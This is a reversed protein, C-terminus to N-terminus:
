LVCMIITEVIKYKCEFKVSSAFEGDILFKHINPVFQITTVTFLITLTYFVLTLKYLPQWFGVM